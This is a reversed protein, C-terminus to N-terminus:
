IPVSPAESYKSELDKTAGKLKDILNKQELEAKSTDGKTLRLLDIAIKKDAAMNALISVYTFDFRCQRQAAKYPQKPCLDDRTRRVKTAFDDLPDAAIAPAAVSVIALTAAVLVIRKM